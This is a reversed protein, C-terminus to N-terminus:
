TFSYIENVKLSKNSKFICLYVSSLQCSFGCILNPLRTSANWFKHVKKKLQLHIVISTPQFWSVHLSASALEVAWSFNNLCSNTYNVSYLDGIQFIQNILIPVCNLGMICFDMFGYTWLHIKYPMFLDM